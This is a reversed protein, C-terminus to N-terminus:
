KDKRKEEVKERRGGLGESSFPEDKNNNAAIETIVLPKTDYDPHGAGYNFSIHQDLHKGKDGSVDERPKRVEEKMIEVAEKDSVKKGFEFVQGQKVFGAFGDAVADPMDGYKGDYKSLDAYHYLWMKKKVVDELRKLDNYDPHVGSSHNMVDCDYFLINDQRELTDGNLGTPHGWSCEHATDMSIYFHQKNDSGVCLLGYSYMTDCQGEIHKNQKLHFYNNDFKFAYGMDTCGISHVQFFEDLNLM